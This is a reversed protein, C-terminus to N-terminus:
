HTAAQEPLPAKAVLGTAEAHLLAQRLVRETKATSLPSKARGSRTKQVRDSAVFLVVRDPTLDAIKTDLGLDAGALALEMKYSAITGDSKGAKDLSDVYSEFVEALTAGGKAAATATAKSGRKGGRRKPEAESPTEATGQVAATEDTTARAVAEASGAGKAKKSSM